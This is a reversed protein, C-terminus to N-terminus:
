VGKDIPVIWDDGDEVILERTSASVLNDILSRTSRVFDAETSRRPRLVPVRWCGPPEEIVTCGQASLADVVSIGSKAIAWTKHLCVSGALTPYDGRARMAESISASIPRIGWATLELGPLNLGDDGALLCRRTYSKHPTTSLPIGAEEIIDLYYAAHSAENELYQRRTIM